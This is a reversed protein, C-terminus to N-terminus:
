KCSVLRQKKRMRWKEDGKQSEVGCEMGNQASVMVDCWVRPGFYKGKNMLRFYTCYRGARKGTKITASIEVCEEPYCQSVPYRDYLSLFEDGKCYALEVDFGWPTHGINKMKWIKTYIKDAELEQRNQLTVHEVFEALLRPGKFEKKHEAKNRWNTQYSRSQKMPKHQKFAAPIPANSPANPHLKAESSPDTCEATGENPYEAIPEMSNKPHSPNFSAASPNLASSPQPPFCVAATKMSYSSPIATSTNSSTIIVPQPYIAFSSPIAAEIKKKNTKKNVSVLLDVPLLYQVSESGDDNATTTTPINPISSLISNIIQNLQANDMTNSPPQPVSLPHREDRHDNAQKISTSISTNISTAPTTKNKFKLEETM